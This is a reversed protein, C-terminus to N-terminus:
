NKKLFLKREDGLIKRMRSLTILNTSCANNVRNKTTLIQKQIYKFRKEEYSSNKSIMIKFFRSRNYFRKFSSVTSLFLERHDVSWCLDEKMLELSNSKFNNVESRDIQGSRALVSYMKAAKVFYDNRKHVSAHLQKLANYASDAKDLIESQVTSHFTSELTQIRSRLMRIEYDYSDLSSSIRWYSDTHYLQQIPNLTNNQTLLSSWLQAVQVLVQTRLDSISVTLSDAKNLSMQLDSKMAKIKEEKTLPSGTGGFTRIFRNRNNQVRREYSNMKPKLSRIRIHRKQVEKFLKNYRAQKSKNQKLLVSRKASNKKNHFNYEEISPKKCSNFSKKSLLLYNLTSDYLQMKTLSDKEKLFDKLYILSADMAATGPVFPNQPLDKKGRIIKEKAEQLDDLALFDDCAICSSGKRKQSQYEDAIGYYYTSDKRFDDINHIATSLSWMPDDPFHDLAFVDPHTLYYNTGNVYRYKAKLRYPFFDIIRYLLPYPFPLVWEETTKLVTGGPIGCKLNKKKRIKLQREKLKAHELFQNLKKIRWKGIRTYDYVNSGSSWTADFLYWYNDLKVANWTHNDFYLSDNVDFTITKTYGDISTSTLGAYFCLSDMLRAYDTCVGRRKKIVTKLRQSSIGRGSNFTRYDYRINTVVWAFLVDFKDKDTTRNETLAKALNKPDKSLSSKVKPAVLELPPHIEQCKAFQYFAIFWLFLFSHKTFTTRLNM